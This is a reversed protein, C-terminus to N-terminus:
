VPQAGDLLEVEVEAGEPAFDWEEPLVILCNAQAVASLIGSGQAGCPRAIYEQGRREVVGRVFHRRRGRNEHGSALRARLVPLRCDPLGLM